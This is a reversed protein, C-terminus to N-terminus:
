SSLTIRDMRVSSKCSTSGSPPEASCGANKMTSTRRQRPSLLDDFCTTNDYTPPEATVEPEELPILYNLVNSLQQHCMSLEHQRNILKEHDNFVWRVRTEFKISGTAHQEGRAKEVWRGIENLASKTSHVSNKIWQLKYPTSILKAQISKTLLLRETENLDNRVVQITRVFVENETGVEAVRVAYEAFKFCTNICAFVATASIPEM